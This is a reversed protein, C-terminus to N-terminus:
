NAAMRATENQAERKMERLKRRRVVRWYHRKFWQRRKSGHKSSRYNAKEWHPCIPELGKRM